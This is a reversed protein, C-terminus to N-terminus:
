YYSWVAFGRIDKNYIEWHILYPPLELVNGELIELSLFTVIVILTNQLTKTIFFIKRCM